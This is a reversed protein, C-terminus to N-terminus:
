LASLRYLVLPIHGGFDTKRRKSSHYEPGLFGQRFLESIRQSGSLTELILTSEWSCAMDNIYESRPRLLPWSVVTQLLHPYFQSMHPPMEVHVVQYMICFSVLSLCFPSIPWLNSSTRGLVFNWPSLIVLSKISQFHATLFVSTDYHNRAKQRTYNLSQLANSM